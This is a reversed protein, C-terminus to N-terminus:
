ISTMPLKFSSDVEKMTNKLKSTSIARQGNKQMISAQNWVIEGPGNDDLLGCVLM